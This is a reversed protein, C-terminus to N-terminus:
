AYTVNLEIVNVTELVREPVSQRFKNDRLRNTPGAVSVAGLVRNNNSLIPAGVCRLGPLREEDDFAFGRERIAEFEAELEERSTLTKDTNKPLGHRDILEDVRDTPFHALMAKGLATCYLPVRTGVYSDVNVAQDGRSQHLYVGYGHEEVTLNALEGTEAALKDVEERAIDYIQLQSRAYAGHELFRTGLRYTGDTNVVYEEQELTSLYNHVTSKPLELNAALETVGAGDLSQLAQVIAFGTELSHVPNVAQKTM